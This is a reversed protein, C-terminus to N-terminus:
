RRRRRLLGLAGLGALAMSSPEPVASINLTMVAVRTDRLRQATGSNVPATNAAEVIAAGQSDFTNGDGPLRQVSFADDVMGIPSLDNRSNTDTQIMLYLNQNEAATLNIGTFGFTATSGSALSNWAVASSVGLFGGLTGGGTTTGTYSTYVGVYVTELASASAVNKVLSLSDISYVQGDVPPTSAWNSTATPTLSSNSFEVYIGGVRGFNATTPSTTTLTAAGAHTAFSLAAALAVSSLSSPM